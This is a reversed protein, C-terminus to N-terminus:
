DVDKREVYDDICVPEEDEWLITPFYDNFVEITRAINNSCWYSYHEPKNPKEVHFYLVKSKDRACWKFKKPIKKLIDLEDDTFEKRKPLKIINEIKSLDNIFYDCLKYDYDDEKEYLQNNEIKYKENPIYYEYDIKFEEGEEVGLIKCLDIKM